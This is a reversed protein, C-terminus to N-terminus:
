ATLSREFVSAARVSRVTVDFWKAVTEASGEVAVAKALIETPVGERTVIPRGFARNPDVVVNRKPHMPFWRMAEDFDSFELSAYLTPSLVNHFAYQSQVLALLKKEHSGELIEAFIRRGGVTSLYVLGLALAGLTEARCASSRKHGNPRMYM